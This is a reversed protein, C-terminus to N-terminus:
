QRSSVDKAHSFMREYKLQQKRLKLMTKIDEESLYDQALVDVDDEDDDFGESSLDDDDNGSQFAIEVQQVNKRM